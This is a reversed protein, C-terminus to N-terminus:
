SLWVQNAYEFVYDQFWATDTRAPLLMVGPTSTETAKNVWKKIERGYPPNCWWIDDWEQKLGDAKIDFFRECKKNKESACVDIKFNFRLSKDFIDFIKIPTEWEYTESTFLGKNVM